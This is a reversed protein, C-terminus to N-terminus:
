DLGKPPNAPPVVKPLKAGCDPCSARGGANAYRAGSQPCRHFKRAPSSM